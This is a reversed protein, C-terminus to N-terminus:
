DRKGFINLTNASVQDDLDSLKQSLKRLEYEISVANQGLFKQSPKYIVAM